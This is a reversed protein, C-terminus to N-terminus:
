VLRRVAALVSRASGICGIALISGDSAILVISDRSGLSRHSSM